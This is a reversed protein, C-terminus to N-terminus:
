RSRWVSHAMGGLLSMAVLGITWGPIAQVTREDFSVNLTTASQWGDLVGPLIAVAAGTLCVILLAEDRMSEPAFTRTRRVQWITGILIAAALGTSSIRDLGQMQLLVVWAGAVAGGLAAACWAWRASCLMLLAATAAAAGIVTADPITGPHALIAAILFAATFILTLGTTRAAGAALVISGLACVMWLAHFTLTM